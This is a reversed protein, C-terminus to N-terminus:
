HIFSFNVRRARHEYDKIGHKILVEMTRKDPAKGSHYDIVGASDVKWQNRINKEKLLQLFVAEAM